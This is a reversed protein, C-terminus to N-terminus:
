LSTRNEALSSAALKRLLQYLGFLIVVPMIVLDFLTLIWVNILYKFVNETKRHLTKVSLNKLHDISASAKEKLKNDPVKAVLDGHINRLQNGNDIQTQTRLYHSTASSFHISYPLVFHLLLFLMLVEKALTRLRRLVKEPIPTHENAWILLLYGLWVWLSIKLLIPAIFESTRAIVQILGIAATSTLNIEIAKKVAANLRSITHGVTVNFDAIFSVGIQSSEVVDLVVAIEALILLEELAKEEMQALYQQNSAVLSLVDFDQEGMQILKSNLRELQQREENMWLSSLSLVTLLSVVFFLRGKGNLHHSNKDIRAVWKSIWQWNREPIWGSFRGSSQSDSQVTVANNGSEPPTPTLDSM